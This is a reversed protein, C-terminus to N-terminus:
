APASRMWRRVDKANIYIVPVKIKDLVLAPDEGEFYAELSAYPTFKYQHEHWEVQSRSAMMEAYGPLDKLLAENAKLWFAKMNGLVQRGTLEGMTRLSRPFSFGPSICVGTALLSDAGADGLYRALMSSGASLGVGYLPLGPHQRQVHQLM